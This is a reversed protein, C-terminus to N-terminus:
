NVIVAHADGFPFKRRTRVGAPMTVFHIIDDHRYGVAVETQFLRVALARDLQYKPLGIEALHPDLMVDDIGAPGIVDDEDFDLHFLARGIARRNLRRTAASDGRLEPTGVHSRGLNINPCKDLAAQGEAMAPLYAIVPALFFDAISAQAGALYPSAALAGDVTALQSDIAPLNAKLAEEDVAVGRQPFVLRPVILGRVITPYLYDLCASVWQTMIARAAPDAPQLAPGDFAEDFYRVIAWTEFLHVDGHTMAPMKGFPHLALYGDTGMAPDVLTHALGKEEAALRATLVYTSAAFGHLIIDTM